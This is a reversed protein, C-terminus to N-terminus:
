AALVGAYVLFMVALAGGVVGWAMANILVLLALRVSM